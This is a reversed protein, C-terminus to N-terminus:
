CPETVNGLMLGSGSLAFGLIPILRKDKLGSLLNMNDLFPSNM